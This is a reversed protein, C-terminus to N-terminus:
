VAEQQSAIDLEQRQGYVRAVFADLDQGQTVRAINCLTM